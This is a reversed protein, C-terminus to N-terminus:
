MWESKKRQYIKSQIGAHRSNTKRKKFFSNLKDPKKTKGKLSDISKRVPLFLLVTSFCGSFEYLPNQHSFGHTEETTVFYVMFHFDSPLFTDM